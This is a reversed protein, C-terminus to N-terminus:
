LVVHARRLADGSGGRELAKFAPFRRELPAVDYIKTIGNSFQVSLKLGPLASVDKVKHFNM